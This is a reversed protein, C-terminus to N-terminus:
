KPRRQRKVENKHGKQQLEETLSAFSISFDLIIIIIINKARTHQLYIM